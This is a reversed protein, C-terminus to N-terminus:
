AARRISTVAAPAEARTEMSIWHTGVAPEYRAYGCVGCSWLTTPLYTYGSQELRGECRAIEGAQCMPCRDHESM